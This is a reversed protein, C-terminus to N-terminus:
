LTRTFPFMDVPKISKINYINELKLLDRMLTAPNCSIYILKKPKIKLINNISTNDLGRRPPDVMVVDPLIKQKNILDDLVKEVDGAIFEANNINNNKANEKAMDIAEKVIEVREDVSFLCNKNPNVVVAVTLSDFLASAREIINLHGNTMPDFSGAYLAKREM